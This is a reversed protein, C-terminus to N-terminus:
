IRVQSSIMVLCQRYVYNALLASLYFALTGHITKKSSPWRLKNSHFTNGIISAMSDGVGISIIISSSIVKFPVLSETVTTLLCALMLYLYSAAFSSKSETSTLLHKTYKFFLSGLPYLQNSRLIELLLFVSMFILSALLLLYNKFFFFPYAM